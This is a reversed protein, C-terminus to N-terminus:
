VLGLAHVLESRGSQVSNAPLISPDAGITGVLEALYESARVRELQLRAGDLREAIGLGPAPMGGKLFSELAEVHRTWLAVDIAQKARLREAYWDSALLAERNFLALLAEDGAKWGEYEGFAMIHLLARIPPCAYRISGDQFYNMAVTRQAEVIADVGACFVSLDQEEPRLIEPPFVAHPVEFMRALFHDVFLATIRYGLRSAQITRGEFCFEPVKELYGNDILYKPDREHVRLRCWLEPVLM